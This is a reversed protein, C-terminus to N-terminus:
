QCLVADLTGCWKNSDSPEVSPMTGTFAVIGLNKRLGMESVFYVCGVPLHRPPVPTKQSLFNSHNQQSTSHTAYWHVNQRWPEFFVECKFYKVKQILLQQLVIYYNFQVVRNPNEKHNYNADVMIYKSYCKYQSSPQNIKKEKKKSKVKHRYKKLYSM